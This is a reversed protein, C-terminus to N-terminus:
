LFLRAFLIQKIQREPHHHACEREDNGVIWDHLHLNLLFSEGDHPLLSVIESFFVIDYLVDHLYITMVWKETWPFYQVRVYVYIYLFNNSHKKLRIDSIRILQPNLIDNFVDGFALVYVVVVPIDTVALIGAVAPVCSFIHFGAVSVLL